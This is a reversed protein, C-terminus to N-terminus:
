LGWKGEGGLASGGTAIGVGIKCKANEMKCKANAEVRVAATSKSGGCICDGGHGAVGCQDVQGCNESERMGREKGVGWVSAERFLSAITTPDAAPADDARAVLVLVLVLAVAAGRGTM